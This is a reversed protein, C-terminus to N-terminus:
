PDLKESDDENYNREDSKQKDFLKGNQCTSTPFVRADIIFERSVIKSCKKKIADQAINVFSNCRNPDIKLKFFLRYM